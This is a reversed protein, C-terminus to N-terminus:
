RDSGVLYSWVCSDPTSSMWTSYGFWESGERELRERRAKGKKELFAPRSLGPSELTGQGKPSSVSVIFEAKQITKTKNSDKWEQVRGLPLSPSATPGSHHLIISLLLRSLSTKLRIKEASSPDLLLGQCWHSGWAAGAATVSQELPNRRASREM